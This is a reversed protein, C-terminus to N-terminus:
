WYKRFIIPHGKRNCSIPNLADYLYLPEENLASMQTQLPDNEKQIEELLQLANKELMRAFYLSHQLVHVHIIAVRYTHTKKYFDLLAFLTRYNKYNKYNKFDEPNRAIQILEGLSFAFYLLFQEFTVIHKGGKDGEYILRWFVNYWENLLPMDPASKSLDPISTNKDVLTSLHDELFRVHLSHLTQLQNPDLFASWFYHMSKEADKRVAEYATEYISLMNRYLSYLEDYWGIKILNESTFGEFYLYKGERLDKKNYEIIHVNKQKVRNEFEVIQLSNETKQEDIFTLFAQQYDGELDAETLPKKSNGKILLKYLKSQSELCLHSYFIDPYRFSKNGFGQFLVSISNEEITDVKGLGFLLHYVATGRYKSTKM